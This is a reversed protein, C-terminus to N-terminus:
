FEKIPDSKNYKLFKDLSANDYGSKCEITIKDCLIKGEERVAYIDGSFERGADGESM